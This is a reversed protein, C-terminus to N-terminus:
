SLSMAMYRRRKEKNQWSFEAGKSYEFIFDELNNYENIRM